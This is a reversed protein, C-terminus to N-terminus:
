MIPKSRSSPLPSPIGLRLAAIPSPQRWGQICGLGVAIALVIVAIVTAIAVGGVDDWAATSDFSRRAESEVAIQETALHWSSANVPMARWDPVRVGPPPSDRRGMTAAPMFGVGDEIAMTQWPAAPQPMPCTIDSSPEGLAQHEPTASFGLGDGPPWEVALAHPLAALLLLCALRRAVSACPRAVGAPSLFKM